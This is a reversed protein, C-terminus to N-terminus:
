LSLGRADGTELQWGGMELREDGTEEEGKERSM